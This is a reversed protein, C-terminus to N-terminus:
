KKENLGFSATLMRGTAEGLKRRDRSDEESVWGLDIISAVVWYTLPTPALIIKRAKRRRSDRSREADSKPSNTSTQEPAPGLRTAPSDLCSEAMGRRKEIPASM